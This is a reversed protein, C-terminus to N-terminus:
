DGIRRLEVRVLARCQAPPKQADATAKACENIDGGHSKLSASSSSSAQVGAGMIEAVTRVRERTGTEMVFAGVTAVPVFHTAGTCDGKLESRRLSTRTTAMKGVTVTAVDLSAGRQLERDLKTTLSHGYVPLSTSIEDGSTLHLSGEARTMPSFAYTADVRCSALVRVGQCDYHLVALSEKMMLELESHLTAPWDIVPLDLKSEGARCSDGGAGAGAGAGVGAGAQSPDHPRVSDDAGRPGCASALLLSLITLLPTAARKM